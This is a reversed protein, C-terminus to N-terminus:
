NQYKNRHKKKLRYALKNDSKLNLTKFIKALFVLIKLEFDESELNKVTQHYLLTM